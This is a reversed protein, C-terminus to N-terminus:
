EDVALFLYEPSWMIDAPKLSLDRRGLTSTLCVVRPRANTNAGSLRTMVDILAIPRTTQVNPFTAAFALGVELPAPKQGKQKMHSRALNGAVERQFASIYIVFSKMGEGTIEFHKSDVDGNTWGFNGLRVMDEITLSYDVTVHVIHPPNAQGQAMQMKM